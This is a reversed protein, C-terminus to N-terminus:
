FGCATMFKATDFRSNDARCVQAIREACDRIANVETENLALKKASNFQAAFAIYTKRSM